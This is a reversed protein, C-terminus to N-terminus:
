ASTMVNLGRHLLNRWRDVKMIYEIREQVGKRYKSAQRGRWNTWEVMTKKSTYAGGGGRVINIRGLEYECIMM